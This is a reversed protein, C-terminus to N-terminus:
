SGIVNARPRASQKKPPRLPGGADAGIGAEVAEVLGAALRTQDDFRRAPCVCPALEEVQRPEILRRDRDLRDVADIRQEGDLALDVAHRRLLADADAVLAASWEDDLQLGPEALVTCFEGALALGGLRDVVAELVPRNVRKRSSPRSHM